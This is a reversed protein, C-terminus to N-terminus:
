ELNVAASSMISLHNRHQIVIYYQAKEVNFRLPSKGDIDVVSGDKKLLCARQAVFISDNLNNKLSVLVWDVINSDPLEIFFEDGNYNFPNENFPQTYPLAKNTSCNMQNFSYAGQLFLKLNFEVSKPYLQYSQLFHYLYLHGFATYWINKRNSIYDLHNELLEWLHYDQIIEPHIFFHYILHNENIFDFTNKIEASDITGSYLPGIEYALNTISYINKNNDWETFNYFGEFIGRTILYNANGAIYDVSDNHDGYPNIYAYIFEKQDNKFLTPLELNNIIDNKSGVIESQYDYPISRHTRSHSLIEVYGSDLQKQINNWTNPDMRSTSDTILACSLWLNRNRLQNIAKNFTNVTYMCWDDATTTVVADRNDYYKCIGEFNFLINNGASDCIKFFLSDTISSFAISIFASHSNYDFRAAEIGNFFEYETKTIIPSWADSVGNKKFVNRPYAIESFRVKYTVPYLFGYNIHLEHDIIILMEGNNTYNIQKIIENGAFNFTQILLSTILFYIIIKLM